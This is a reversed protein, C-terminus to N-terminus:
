IKQNNKVSGSSATENFSSWLLSKLTVIKNFEHSIELFM